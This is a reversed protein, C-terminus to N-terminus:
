FHHRMGVMFAESKQGPLRAFYQANDDNDVATYFAYVKTRKSLNYNAGVTYQIAGSDDIDGRDDAWGVNAHLETAGITYMISGRVANREGDSGCLWAAM